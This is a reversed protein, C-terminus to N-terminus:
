RPELLKGRSNDYAQRTADAYNKPRAENGRRPMPNSGGLVPAPPLGSRNLDELAKAREEERIKTRESELRSNMDHELNRRGYKAEYAKELSFDFRKAEGTLEFLDKVTLNPDSRLLAGAEMAMMTGLGQQQSMANWLTERDELYGDWLVKQSETLRGDIFEEIVRGIDSDNWPDIKLPTRERRTAEFERTHERSVEGNRPRGETGERPRRSLDAVTREAVERERQAAVLDARAKVLEANADRAKNAQTLAWDSVSKPVSKLEAPAGDPLGDAPPPTGNDVPKPKPMSM